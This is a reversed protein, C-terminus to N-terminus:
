RSHIIQGKWHAYALPVLICIYCSAVKMVTVSGTHVHAHTCVLMCMELESVVNSIPAKNGERVEPLVSYLERGFECDDPTGQMGHPM